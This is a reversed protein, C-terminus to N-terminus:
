MGVRRMVSTARVHDVRRVSEFCASVVQACDLDELGVARRHLLEDPAEDDEQERDDAHDDVEEEGVPLGVVGVLGQRLRRSSSHGPSVKPGPIRLTGTHRDSM